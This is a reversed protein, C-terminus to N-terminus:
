RILNVDTPQYFDLPIKGRALKDVILEYRDSPYTQRNLSPYTQRNFAILTLELKDTNNDIPTITGVDISM